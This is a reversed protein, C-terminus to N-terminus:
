HNKVKRLAFVYVLRKLGMLVSRGHAKQQWRRHSASPEGPRRPIGPYLLYIGMNGKGLYEDGWYSGARCETMM